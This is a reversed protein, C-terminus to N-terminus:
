RARELLFDLVVRGVQRAGGAVAAHDLGAARFVEARGLLDRGAAGSPLLGRPVGLERARQELPAAAEGAVAFGAALPRVIGEITIVVPRQGEDLLLRALRQSGLHGGEVTTREAGLAAFGVSHLPRAVALARALELFVGIGEGNGEAGEATDYAVAVLAEPAEGSPPLAIVDTSNFTNAVPVAELRVAYGERQLHGLIYAAAAEEQQTGAFRNKLDEDFQIAHRRVVETLVRPPGGARAPEPESSASTCSTLLLLAGLLKTARRM